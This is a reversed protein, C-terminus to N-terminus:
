RKVLASFFNAGVCQRDIQYAEFYGNHLRGVERAWFRSLNIIADLQMFSKESESEYCQIASIKKQIVSSIDVFLNPVFGRMFVPPASYWLSVRKRTAANSVGTSCVEHDRHGYRESQPAHTIVIEPRWSVILEEAVKIVEQATFKNEDLSYFEYTSGILKGAEVAEKHRLGKIPSSSHNGDTLVICHVQWGAQAMLFLTGASPLVEDDGHAHITLIKPKIIPATTSEKNVTKINAWANFFSIDTCHRSLHFAEFYGDKYGLERAWLRSSVLISDLQLFTKDSESDYSGVTAVKQDITSSIDVFFNPEFERLFGSPASYWLSIKQRYAVHSVAISTIEYDAHGYKESQPSHTIILDPQLRQVAQEIVKIAAQKSLNGEEFDFFQNNAGILKEITETEQSNTDKIDSNVQGSSTLFLCHIRWGAQSMLLMTGAVSLLEDDAHAYITLVTSQSNSINKSDIVTNM